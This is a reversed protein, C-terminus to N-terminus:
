ENNFRKKIKDVCVSCYNKLDMKPNKFVKAKCVPCLLNFLKIFFRIGKKQVAKIKDPDQKRIFSNIKQEERVM